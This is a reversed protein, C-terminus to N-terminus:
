YKLTVTGTLPDKDSNYEIVYYYDAIPLLQGGYTGNWPSTYGTSEFLLQGWRNYVQVKSSPFYELGGILWNDNAGDGNPTLVNAIFFCGISPEIIAVSDITCGIVDTITATYMGEGLGVAIPGTQELEDDWQITIPEFGGLVAATATGDGENWCSVPSTFIELELDTVIAAVIQITDQVTCGTVDVATVIWEGEPLELLDEPSLEGLDLTVEGTGGTVAVAVSGDTMGTCTVPNENIIIQLPDPEDVQVPLATLCGNADTAEVLNFGACLEDDEQFPDGNWVVSYAPIGGSVEVNAVGDCDGGCGVEQLFVLEVVLLDPEAITVTQEVTCANEDTGIILYDNPALGTFIPGGADGNATFTFDGTGGSGSVEIIGDNLGNCSVDTSDITLVLPQPSFISVEQEISCNTDDTIEITYVGGPLNEFVAEAQPGANVPGTLEFTYDPVGGLANISIEGNDDGPCIVDVFEITAVLEAPQIIEVNLEVCCNNDDCVTVIYNGACLSLPDAGGFDTTYPALGGSIDLTITGDCLNFCSVETHEETVIFEEPQTLIFSENFPCANEDVGDLIYEGDCLDILNINVPNGTLVQSFGDPGSVTITLEGTGGAVSGVLSGDCVEFCNINTQAVDIVILDPTEITIDETYFCGGQDTVTLVYSGGVLDTFTNLIQPGANIPGTIQYEYTPFSGSAEATISGTAGEPCLVDVITTEVLLETPQEIEISLQVCCNNGDCVEIDYIGACLANEDAGGFDVTYPLTGGEITLDIIGDCLGFCSVDFHDETVVLEAPETITITEEFVCSNEDTATIVYDGACLDTLLFNVPNGLYDDQFGSPGSISVDLDGTGGSLNGAITADCAEFCSVQQPIFNSAIPDPCELTVLEQTTCDHDDTVTIVYDGCELDEISLVGVLVEGNVDVTYPATGGEITFSIVGNADGPCLVEADIQPTLILEDPETIIYVDTSDLCGNNDEAVAFYSGPPLGVFNGDGNDEIFPTILDNEEVLDWIIPPVGQGTALTQATFTGDDAGFCSVDTTGLGEIEFLGPACPSSICGGVDLLNFVNGPIGFGFSQINFQVCVEGCTTFQGVLVRLDPGAITNVDGNNPIFMIGDSITFSGGGPDFPTYGAAPALSLVTVNAGPDNACAKGITLYSDWEMDPFQPILICTTQQGTLGCLENNYFDCDTTVSFPNTEGPVAYIGGMVDEPNDFTVYCRYTIYGAPLGTNVGNHIQHIEFEVGNAQASTDNHILSFIVALSAIISLKIVKTVLKM